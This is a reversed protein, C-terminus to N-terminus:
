CVAVLRIGTAESLDGASFVRDDLRDVLLAVIGALVLGVALGGVLYLRPDPDVPTTPVRAREVLALEGDLRSEQEAVAERRAYATVFQNQLAALLAPQTSAANLQNRLGALQADLYAKTPQLATAIEAHQQAILQAALLNALLTARAPDADTASVALLDTGKVTTLTVHDKLSEYTCSGGAQECVSNLVTETTAMKAYHAALLEGTSITANLDASEATARQDVVMLATAQYTAPKNLVIVTAAALCVGVTLVIWVGRRRLVGFVSKGRRQTDDM